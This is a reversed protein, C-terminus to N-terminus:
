TLFRDNQFKVENKKELERSLCSIGLWRSMAMQESDDMQRLVVIIAEHSFLSSNTIVPFNHGHCINENSCIPSLIFSCIARVLNQSM